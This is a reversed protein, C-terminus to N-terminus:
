RLGLENDLLGFIEDDSASDLDDEAADEASGRDETLRRVLAQLRSAVTPHAAASGTAALVAELRDLEALVPDAAGDGDLALEELLFAALAAATPYDFVVTAPLRQGAVASLRNRFEVAALSDFGLEQFPRNAAIADGSAHGLVAAITARVVDLTIEQREAADHGALRDRLTQVSGAAAGPKAGARVRVMGRFLAPLGGSDAQARLGALDFATLVPTPEPAAFTADFMALAHAVPLPSIGSRAIRARDAADLTGGMGDEQEWLGWALSAAPLGDAARHQALADLYTNAAAYNAQGPSGVVGAISSFLVFAKLDLDRTLEHLNWAADVKPRLVADLREATLGGITADDLVGAAHVVACLPHRKPIKALLKGLAARDAADCAALTVTAGLATLEDKLETAGPAAAGRRSALILRTAGHETILRRAILAGLSGTAGTLLVTGDLAAADDGDAPGATDPRPARALRPGYVVGSRVAFQTEGAGVHPALAARLAEGAAAPDDLDAILVRGPNETQASRALGWITAHILDTVRDGPLAGIAGHTTFLLRAESLQPAAIFTQLIELAERTAAHVHAATDDHDDAPQPGAPLPVVVVDPAPVGGDCTEILDTLDELESGIVSWSAEPAAPAGQQALATWDVRYVPSESQAAARSYDAAVAVRVPSGHDALHIAYEIGEEAPEPLAAEVYTRGGGSWAARVDAFLPDDALGASSLIEAVQEVPVQTAAAEATPWTESRGSALMATAHRIWSGEDSEDDIAADAPRSFVVATRAGDDDQPSVTLRVVQPTRVDFALASELEFGDLEPAGLHQATHLVLDLLAAAPLVVTEAVTFEALWSHTQTSLRGTFLIGKAGPLEAVACLIPHQTTTLGAQTLDGTNAPKTLWYREHQFPYTPLDTLTGPTAASLIADWTPTHGATHLTTLATLLTSTEPQTHHLTAVLAAPTEPLTQDTLATLTPHPTLELYRTTGLTHLTTAADAFRVTNRLQRAWYDPTTIEAPDATEGTLTSIIPVQPANFTLGAAIQRYEDLVGNQHPSHFAHSVTLQKTKVDQEALTAAIRTLADPDGSLVTSRPANVAALSVNNELGQILSKATTEDAQLSLM